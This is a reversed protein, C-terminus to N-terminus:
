GQNKQKSLNELIINLADNLSKDLKQSVGKLAKAEVFNYLYKVEKNVDDGKETLYVRMLRMDYIDKERVIYGEAELANLAVSISSGKLSTYRALDNQSIGDNENLVELILRVARQSFLKNEYVRALKEHFLKVIEEMKDLKERNLTYEKDIM